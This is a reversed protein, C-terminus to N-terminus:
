KKSGSRGSNRVRVKRLVRGRKQPAAVRPQRSGRGTRGDGGSAAKSRGALKAAAKRPTGGTDDQEELERIHEVPVGTLKAIKKAMAPVPRFKEDTWVYITQRSVGIARARDALSDGPVKALIDAMPYRLRHVLARFERKLAPVAIAEALQDLQHNFDDM